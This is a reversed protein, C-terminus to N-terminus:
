RRKMLNITHSLAVTIAFLVYFMWGYGQSLFTGAICYGILGFYVGNSVILLVHNDQNKSNLELLRITSSISKLCLYVCSIFLFFGIFGTESLISFWSSHSAVDRKIGANSYNFFNETFSNLGVGTIPHNVAMKIAAKWAEIRDNSSEDLGTELGLNGGSLREGIGAVYYFFVFLCLGLIIILYKNKINKYSFTLIIGMLGLLGGRSQTAIIAFVTILSTSLGLFRVANPLFSSAFLTTTFSFPLLLFLALDNPDGIIGEKYTISARTGEVLGLGYYKNNLTILSIILGSAVCLNFFWLFDKKDRITWVILFFALGIKSFVELWFNSSISFSYSFIVNLSVWLFFASFYSMEKSWYLKIKDFALNLVLSIIGLLAFIFAIPYAALGPIIEQIRCLSIMVFILVFFSPKSFGKYLVWPSFCVALFQYILIM